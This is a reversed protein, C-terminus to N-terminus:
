HPKIAVDLDMPGCSTQLTRSRVSAFGAALMAQAIEGQPFNNMGGRTLGGVLSGLVMEKPRTGQHTLGDQFCALVGGPNLAQHVKEFIAPLSSRYFNLTASAWVLDYGQGIDDQAYDAGLAQVQDSFGYLDIYEQAVKAVAPQDLVVAKLDPNAQALAMAVLGPGGGMDLMKKFSDFGPLATIQKVALQALGARAYQVNAHAMKAWLEERGLDDSAAPPFGQRLREPLSELPDVLMKWSEMLLDGIYAPGSTNFFRQSLTTNCFTENEKEAYGCAALANLMSQCREEPVQIAEALQSATLPKTLSDFVKLELAAM